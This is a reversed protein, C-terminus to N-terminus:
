DKVRMWFSAAEAQPYRQRMLDFRASFASLIKEPYKQTLYNGPWIVEFQSNFSLFTQLMYQEMWYTQNELYVSPYPNPLSIDHVHVLVGPQLRPLIECYEWWVDGGPKVTHSSDIFLIDNHGLQQFFDLPVDQVKAQIFKDVGSVSSFDLSPYPDISVLRTPRDGALVNKAIAATALLTSNGAGIEIIRQPKYYRIFSYYVCADVVMFSGNLDYFSFPDEPKTTPFDSFEAIYPFIVKDLLDLAVALNMDVGVLESSVIHTLDDADPLPSYYHNIVINYKYNDFVRRYRSDLGFKSIYWAIINILGQNLFSVSFAKKIKRLLM